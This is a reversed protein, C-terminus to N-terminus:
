IDVITDMDNRYRELLPATAKTMEWLAQNSQKRGRMGEYYWFRMTDAYEAIEHLKM